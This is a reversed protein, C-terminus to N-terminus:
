SGSILGRTLHRNGHLIRLVTVHDADSRYFLLYPAIVVVRINLGFRPRPSGSYPFEILRDLASDFHLAYRLGIAKGAEGQLYNTIEVIDSRAAPSVTLGTM